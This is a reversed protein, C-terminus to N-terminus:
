ASKMSTATSLTTFASRSPPMRTTTITSSNREFRLALAMVSVAIGSESAAATRASRAKPALMLVIVSPPMAIAM